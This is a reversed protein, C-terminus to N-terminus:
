DDFAKILEEAGVALGGAAGLVQASRGWFGEKGLRREIRRAWDLGALYADPGFQAAGATDVEPPCNTKWSLATEGIFASPLSAKIGIDEACRLATLTALGEILPLGDWWDISLYNGWWMHALEHLVTMVCEPSMTEGEAFSDSLTICGAGEMGGVMPLLALDLKEFPFTSQLADSMWRKGSMLLTSLELTWGPETETPESSSWVRLNSLPSDFVCRLTGAVVASTYTPIPPTENFSWIGRADDLGGAGNSLVQWGAPAAVSWRHVAKMSPQDFCAYVSSAATPELKTFVGETEDSGFRLLGDSTGYEGRGQVTWRNSGSVIPLLTQQGDQPSGWVSGDIEIICGTRFAINLSQFGTKQAEFTITSSSTFFRSEARVDIFVDYSVDTISQARLQVESKRM